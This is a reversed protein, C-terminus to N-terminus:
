PEWVSSFSDMPTDVLRHLNEGTADAVHIQPRHYEGPTAFTLRLGDPAWAPPERLYTGKPLCREYRGDAEVICLQDPSNKGSLFALRTGDPAWVPPQEIAPIASLRRVHSGDADMLYFSPKGDRQSIFAIQRGDPAWAPAWAANLVSDPAGGDIGAVFLERLSDFVIHRSDPAWSPARGSAVSRGLDRPVGGAADVVKLRYDAVFAIHQGDPSWVPASDFLLERHGSGAQRIPRRLNSGDSNMVYLDYSYRGGDRNSIFAIQRGDPSLAPRTDAAPTSTLRRLNGGGAGAAFIETNKDPFMTFALHRGDPAWAPVWPAAWPDPHDNPLWRMNAGTSDAVYLRDDRVFAIRQGGPAWAVGGNVTPDFLRQAGTGNANVVYVENGAAGALYTLRNDPTWAPQGAGRAIPRVNGGNADMTFIHYQQDHFAVFAIQKGDPSWAPHAAYPEDLLM